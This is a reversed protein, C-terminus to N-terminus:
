SADEEASEAPADAQEASDDSREREVPETGEVVGLAGAGSGDPSVTDGM